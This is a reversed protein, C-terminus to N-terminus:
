WSSIPTAATTQTIFRSVCVLGKKCHHSSFAEHQRLATHVPQYVHGGRDCAVIVLVFTNDQAPWSHMDGHIASIVQAQPNGNSDPLLYGASYTGQSATGTLEASSCKPNAISVSLM